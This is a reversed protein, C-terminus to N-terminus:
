HFNYGYTEGAKVFRGKERQRSDARVKRSAYRIQKGFMRTKKKKNYRKKAEVRAQSCSTGLNADWTPNGNLIVASLGCDQYDAVCSEGTINSLSLSAGSQVLGTPFNLNVSQSRCPNIPEQDNVAKLLQPVSSFFLAQPPSMPSSSMKTFTELEKMRNTLSTVSWFLSRSNNRNEWYSNICNTSLSVPSKCSPSSSWIEIFEEPSPSGSYFSLPQHKHESGLCSNVNCECSECLCAEDELCQITAPQSNCKDCLLSRVHRQSIFNASHVFGDCQLCLAAMDQKCYVVARAVGCFECVPEVSGM